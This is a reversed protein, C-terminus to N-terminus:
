GLAKRVRDTVYSRTNWWGEHNYYFRTYPIGKEACDNRLKRAESSESMLEVVLATRGGDLLTIIGKRGGNLLQTDLQYQPFEEGIVKEFYKHWPGQFNFQNEEDPMVSGWSFGSPEDYAPSQTQVPVSSPAPASSQASSAQQVANKAEDAVKKADNVFGKLMDIAAKEAKDASEGGGLIKSFLGM